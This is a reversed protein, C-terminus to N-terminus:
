FDVKNEFVARVIRKQKKNGYSAGWLGKGTLINWLLSTVLTSLLM